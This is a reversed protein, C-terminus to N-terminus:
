FLFYLQIMIGRLIIYCQIDDYRLLVLPSIPIINFHLFFGVCSIDSGHILGGGGLFFIFHIIEDLMHFVRLGFFFFYALSTGQEGM